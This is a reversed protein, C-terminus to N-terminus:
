RPRPRSSETPDHSPTGYHGNRVPHVIGLLFGALAGALRLSRAAIGAQRRSRIARRLPVIGWDVITSRAAAKGKERDLRLLKAVRAGSGVGYAGQVRIYDRLRRWPVHLAAVAPEYRGAFGAMFLRDFLDLDEAARFRGGAGLLEDFGGIRDLASRRVVLNASHGLVDDSEPDLVAALEEKKQALAPVHSAAAEDIRGTVFGINADAFAREIADAWSPEVRVDDDVFAVVDHKAAQWGRNRARSAGPVDCRLYIAAHKDVIRRVHPDTSASDAVILEDTKRLSRRLATLCGDLLEPRNRTPVVVSIPHEAM